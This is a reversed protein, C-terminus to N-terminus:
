KSSASLSVSGWLLGAFLPCLGLALALSLIQLPGKVPGQPSGSIMVQVSGHTPPKVPDAQLPQMNKFM